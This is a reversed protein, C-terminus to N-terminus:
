PAKEEVLNGGLIEHAKARFQEGGGTLTWNEGTVMGVGAGLKRQQEAAGAADTQTAYTSVIVNNDAAPWCQGREAAGQPATIPSYKPCVLGGKELATVIDQAHEFTGGSESSGCGSLVTIAAALLVATRLIRHM